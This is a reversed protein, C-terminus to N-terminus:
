VPFSKYSDLFHSVKRDMPKSRDVRGRVIEDEIGACVAFDVVHENPAHGVNSHRIGKVHLTVIDPDM